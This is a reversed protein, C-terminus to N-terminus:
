TSATILASTRLGDIRAIPIDQEDQNRLETLVGARFKAEETEAPCMGPVTKDGVRNVGLHHISGLM